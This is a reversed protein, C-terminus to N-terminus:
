IVDAFHPRLKRFTFTGVFLFGIAIVWFYLTENPHSWFPKHYIFTDRYGNIIYYMPNLRPLFAWEAPVNNVSWFVPSLYFLFQLGISVIHRIDPIFVSLASAGWSIGLVLVNMAFFYYFFQLWYLSPYYGYITLVVLLLGLMILHFISCSLAKMIPLISLRFNVKKVLFSYSRIVQSGENTAMSFYNFAVMGSFLYLFFPVDQVPGSKFGFTFIISLIVTTALPEFIAWTLGLYSEVYKQVFDRKTLQYLLYRKEGIQRFFRLATQM